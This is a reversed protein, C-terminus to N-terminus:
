LKTQGKRGESCLFELSPGTDERGIQWEKPSGRVM